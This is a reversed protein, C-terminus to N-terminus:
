LLEYTSFPIIIENVIQYFLNKVTKHLGINNYTNFFYISDKKIPEKKSITKNIYSNLYPIYNIFMEFYTKEIEKNVVIDDLNRNLLIYKIIINLIDIDYYCIYGDLDLYTNIIKELIDINNIININYRSVSNQYNYNLDNNKYNLQSMLMEKNISNNYYSRTDDYNYNDSNYKKNLLVIIENEISTTKDM